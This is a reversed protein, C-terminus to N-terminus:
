LRGLVTVWPRMASMLATLLVYCFYLTVVTVTVIM